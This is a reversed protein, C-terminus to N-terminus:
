IPDPNAKSQKIKTMNQNQFIKSIRREGRSYSGSSALPAVALINNLDYNVFIELIWINNRM